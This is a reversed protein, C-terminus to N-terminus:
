AEGEDACEEADGENNGGGTKLYRATNVLRVMGKNDVKHLYIDNLTTGKQMMLTGSGALPVEILVKHYKSGLTCGDVLAKWKTGFEDMTIEDKELQDELDRKETEKLCGAVIPIEYSNYYQGIMYKNQLAFSMQAPAGLSASVVMDGVVSDEGDSHWTMSQNPYNGITTIENFSASLGAIENTTDKLKNHIKLVISPAQDFPIDAMNMRTQYTEGYNQGFWRTLQGDPTSGTSKTFRRFGINGNQVERWHETWLEKWGGEEYIAVHKPYAFLLENGDHLRFGKIIYKDHTLNNILEVTKASVIGPIESGDKLDLWFDDVLDEFEFEPLKINLTNGCTSCVLRNWYERMNFHNCQQCLYSDWGPRADGGDFLQKLKAKTLQVPAPPLYDHKPPIVQLMVTTPRWTLYTSSYTRTDSSAAWDNSNNASACAPRGCFLYEVHRRQMNCTCTACVTKEFPRLETMAPDKEDADKSWWIGDEADVKDLRGMLMKVNVMRKNKGTGREEQTWEVWFDTLVWWGMLAYKAPLAIGRKALEPHRREIIVGIQHKDKIATRAAEVRLNYMTPGTADDKSLKTIITTDSLYEGSCVLSGISLGHIIHDKCYLGGQNLRWWSLSEQLSCISDALYVDVGNRVYKSQAPAMTISSPSHNQITVFSSDQHHQEANNATALSSKRTLLHLSPLVAASVPAFCRHIQNVKSASGHIKMVRFFGRGRGASTSTSSYFALQRTTAQSIKAHVSVALTMCGLCSIPM